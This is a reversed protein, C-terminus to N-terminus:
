KDSICRIFYNPPVPETIPVVFDVMVEFGEQSVQFEKLLIYEHHLIIEEDGDEVIIWFGEGVSDHYKPDWRFDPTITLEVLLTSRTLPQVFASLDLAPVTHILRHLVKGLKPTRVLEGLETPSLDFYREWPFDKKELKRLIDETLAGKFQRLPSMISWMRRTVMKYFLLTRNALAAWGRKLCIEFFARFIRGSSQQIYSMDASLAFGELKLHSIYAQLLVNVKTSTEEILNASTGGKVPIPVREIFKSLEIKEEQRVPINKFESSLSFLRLLEVDSFYVKLHENYISVSPYRIYYQSAVRGLPTPQVTGLRKDYRILQHKDLLTLASHAIDTRLQELLPDKDDRVDAPFGYLTPNRLLRVFFYTYGLWQVVDHRSLITTLTIEANLIDPLMSILQSEIPLQQNNLSLYFQLETHNTIIIGHGSSDYQPRGARGMMQMVDLFSLETWKGVEPSYVQTGKIIVTHAPLNVGWALTSTSVLVQIHKDAFLDEILRRDTRPLGAHHVAFGYPLLDKLDETKVADVETQLIERSASDEELFRSLTEEEMAMQRLMRATKVTERRSHVFVLVQSRGANELVKEYTVRNMTALRKIAKKEKLGIFTQTLPVPRYEPGFFFLGDDKELSVRLFIAVDQYNPLTASLGVLRVHMQTTEVQRLTRAVLAEIVPGRTDHLLHIEDIIVLKVLQIYAREGSRRTIVDWKEPTTVIIQTEEIQQRSMNVDGTLEEVRLGYCDFRKQLAAVQEMVLAKMPSIYVVKFTKKDIVGTAPDRHQKLLGLICLVAINTKGAGTPACILMNKETRNFAMDYVTTQPANLKQIGVNSFPPQIWDPLESIPLHTVKGKDLEEIPKKKIAPIIVEDYAKKEIRHTDDELEVVTNAMLHGGESFITSEIDILTSPKLGIVGGNSMSGGLHTRHRNLGSSSRKDDQDSHKGMNKWDEYDSKEAVAAASRETLTAAERRVNRAFEREKNIRLKVIELLELVEQGQVSDRMESLINQKQEQSQAQGLLTCYYVKWRNSLLLKAFNFNDYKLIYVLRNECEQLDPLPLVKLIEKEIQVTLEADHFIKSLERQLWHPDITRVNLSDSAVGGRSLGSVMEDDEDDGADNAYKAELYTEEEDEGLRKRDEEEEDDKDVFIENDVDGNIDNFEPEDEEDFVVAVGSVEAASTDQTTSVDTDLGNSRSTKFDHLGRSLQYLQMFTETSLPGVAAECQEKKQVDRLESDRCTSIIVDAADILVDDPEDGIVTVIESLLRRYLLSSETTSPVYSSVESVDPDLVSAGKRIENKFKKSAIMRQRHSSDAKSSYPRESLTEMTAQKKKLAKQFETPNSRVVKDGMPYNLKGVLSEPEGTPENQSPAHSEKQIVLNSNLRYDFRRFAEFREAM